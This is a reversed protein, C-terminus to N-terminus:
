RRGRMHHISPMWLGWKWEERNAMERLRGTNGMKPLPALGWCERKQIRPHQKNNMLIFISYTKTKHSRKTTKQHALSTLGSVGIGLAKPGLVYLPLVVMLHDLCLDWFPVPNGIQCFNYM